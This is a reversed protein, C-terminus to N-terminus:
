KKEQIMSSFKERQWCVIIATVVLLLIPIRTYLMFTDSLGAFFIYSVLTVGLIPLKQASFMRYWSWLFFAFVLMGLMGLHMGIEIWDHHYHSTSHFEPLGRYIGGKYTEIVDDFYQEGNGTGYGLYLRKSIADFGVDWMALRYGVSTSYNGQQFQAMDQKALIFREQFTSSSFAFVVTVIILSFLISMLKRIEIRFQLSILLPITALTALLIGRGNQNFQLFLLALAIAWLLIRLSTSRSICAFYIALIVSLGLLSSFSLYSINLFPVGLADMAVWQYIGISLVGLYGFALVGIVWPLREKNLLSLFPIFILLIFYKTWKHRGEGPSDGWLLGLLLMLCLIVIAQVLPETFTQKLRLLGGDIVWALILMPFLFLYLAKIWLGLCFLLLAFKILRERWIFNLAILKIM